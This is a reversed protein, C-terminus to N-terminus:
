GGVKCGVLGFKWDTDVQFSVNDFVLDSSGEYGFTLNQVSILSM